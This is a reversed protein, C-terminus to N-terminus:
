QKKKMAEIQRERYHSLEINMESCYAKDMARIIAVEKLNMVVGTLKSWALIETPPIPECVGNRM